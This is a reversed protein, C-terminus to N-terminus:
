KLQPFFVLIVCGCSRTGAVSVKTRVPERQLVPVKRRYFVVVYCDGTCEGRIREMREVCVCM